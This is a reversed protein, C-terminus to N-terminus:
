KANTIARQSGKRSLIQSTCLPYLHYLPHADNIHSMGYLCFWLGLHLRPLIDRNQSKWGYNINLQDELHSPLSAGNQAQSSQSNRSNRFDNLSLPRPPRSRLRNELPGTMTHGTSPIDALDSLNQYDISWIHDFLSDFLTDFIILHPWRQKPEQEVASIMSPLLHSSNRQLESESTCRVILNSSCTFAAIRHDHDNHNWDNDYYIMIM